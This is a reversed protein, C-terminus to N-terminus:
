QVGRDGRNSSKVRNYLDSSTRDEGTIRNGNLTVHERLLSRDLDRSMVWM